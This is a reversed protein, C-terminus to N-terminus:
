HLVTLKTQKLPKGDQMISLFYLGNSVASIDFQSQKTVLVTAGSISNLTIIPDTIAAQDLGSVMVMSSAPNPYIVVQSPDFGEIGICGTSIHAVSASAIGATTVIELRIEFDETCPPLGQALLSVSNNICTGISQMPSAMLIGNRSVYATVQAQYGNGDAQANIVLEDPDSGQYVGSIQISPPGGNETVASQFNISYSDNYTIGTWQHTDFWYPTAALLDDYVFIQTGSACPNCVLTSDTWPGNQGTTNKRMYVVSGPGSVTITVPIEVSCSGTAPDGLEVVPPAPFDLTVFSQVCSNSIGAANTATIVYSVYTGANLGSFPFSGSYPMTWSGFVTDQFTTGMTANIQVQTVASGPYSSGPSVTFPATATFYGIGTATSCVVTPAPIPPTNFTVSGSDTGYIDQMFFKFVHVTDAALNSISGFSVMGSSMIVQTPFLTDLVGGTWVSGWVQATSATGLTANASFTAGVPNIGTINGLTANIDCHTIPATTASNPAAAYVAYISQSELRFYRLTAPTLGTITIATDGSGTLSTLWPTYTGYSATAGHNVRVNTVAGYGFDYHFKVKISFPTVPFPTIYSMYAYSPNHLTTFSYGASSCGTTGANVLIGCFEVNTYTTNSVLNYLSVSVNTPGAVTVMVTDSTYLGGSAVAWMLLTDGPIPNNAVGTIVTSDNSNFFPPGADVTFTPIQANVVISVLLALVMSVIKKM